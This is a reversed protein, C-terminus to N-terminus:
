IIFYYVSTKDLEVNNLNRFKLRAYAYLLDLFDSNQLFIKKKIQVCSIEYIKLCSARICYFEYFYITFINIFLWM